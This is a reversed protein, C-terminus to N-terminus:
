FRSKSCRCFNKDHSNNTQYQKGLMGLALRPDNNRTIKEVNLSIKAQKHSTCEFPAAKKFNGGHTATIHADHFCKVLPSKSDKVSIPFVVNIIRRSRPRAHFTLVVDKGIYIDFPVPVGNEIPHGNIHTFTWAFLQHDYDLSFARCFNPFEESKSHRTYNEPYSSWGLLHIPFYMWWKWDKTLKYPISIEHNWTHGISKGLQEIRRPEWHKERHEFGICEFGDITVKVVQQLREFGLQSYVGSSLFRDNEVCGGLNASGITCKWSGSDDLPILEICKGMYPQIYKSTDSPAKKKWFGEFSKLISDASQLDIAIDYAVQREQNNENLLLRRNVVTGLVLFPDHRQNRRAKNVIQEWEHQWNFNVWVESGDPFFDDNGLFELINQLPYKSLRFLSPVAARPFPARRPKSPLGLVVAFPMANKNNKVIQRLDVTSSGTGLFDCIIDLPRMSYDCLVKFGRQFATLDRADHKKPPMLEHGLVVQLPKTGYNKNKGDNKSNGNAPDVVKSSNRDQKNDGSYSYRKCFISNRRKKRPSKNTTSSRDLDEVNSRSSVTKTNTGSSCNDDNTFANTTSSSHLDQPNGRSSVHNNPNQENTAVNAVFEAESDHVILDDPNCGSSVHNTSNQENTSLNAENEAELDNLRLLDVSAELTTHYELQAQTEDPTDHKPNQSSLAAVTLATALALIIKLGSAM